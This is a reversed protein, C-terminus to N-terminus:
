VSSRPWITNRSVGPIWLALFLSPSNMSLFASSAKELGEIAKIETFTDYGDKQPMDVDLLILTVDKNKQLLKVAQEGSKALSVEYGEDVLIQEATNLMNIDDDVYLIRKGM